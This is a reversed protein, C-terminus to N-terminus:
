RGTADGELCLRGEKDFYGFDGTYVAPQAARSSNSHVFRTKATKEPEDWYAEFAGEGIHIVEGVAGQPVDNGNEDVIRLEVGPVPYGVSHRATKAMSPPLSASRFTETMGYNLSIAANPFHELMLNFVNSPIKSGTNTILRLSDKPTDSFPSLGMLLDAMVAPQSAMVTPKHDSLAACIGFGNRPEPLVLPIGGLTLSLLQGWGYDFSFPVPCLIRDQATLGFLQSMRDVGSTLTKALQVVGKPAGTSGSTFIISAPDDGTRGHDPLQMAPDDVLGKPVARNEAGSVDQGDTFVLRAGTKAVTHAKHEASADANIVAPIGGLRWTALIVTVFGISNHASVVVRHGSGIPLTSAVGEAASRLDAFSIAASGHRIATKTAAVEAMIAFRDWVWGTM